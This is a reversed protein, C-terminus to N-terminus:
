DVTDFKFETMFCQFVYLMNLCRGVAVCGHSIRRPPAGLNSVASERKKKRGAVGQQKTMWGDEQAQVALSESRSRRNEMEVITPLITTPRDLNEELLQRTPITRKLLTPRAAEQHSTSPLSESRRQTASPKPAPPVQAAESERLFNSIRELRSELVLRSLPRGRNSLTQLYNPTKPQTFTAVFGSCASLKWYLTIM